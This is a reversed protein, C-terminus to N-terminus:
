GAGLLKYEQHGLCYYCNNARSAIWFLKVKFTSDLTMAPDSERGGGAGRGTERLEAPCTTLESRVMTSGRSRTQPDVPPMPLRPRAQKHKELLEKEQDRTIGVPKSTDTPPEAAAVTMFQLLILTMM